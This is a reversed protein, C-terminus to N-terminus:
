EWFMSCFDTTESTNLYELGEIDTLNDMYFFWSNCTTPRADAFTSDIVVKEVSRSYNSTYWKPMDSSSSVRFKDTADTDDIKNDYRFTLTKTSDQYEVWMIAKKTFYGRLTAMEKGTKTDEYNPLKTSNKFMDDGKCDDAVTFKDTAYISTLSSCDAFMHSMDAVNATNFLSLDISTISTCGEFMSSMDTVKQTNLYTLGDFSALNSMGKFWSHFSTPSVSNFAKNIVVHEVDEKHALWDPSDTTGSPVDYTNGSASNRQADYHFALTKTTKDYDVWKTAGSEIKIFYGNDANAMDYNTNNEDYDLLSNCGEFMGYGSCDDTMVFSDSVFISILSSCNQFMYDIESLIPTNFSTLDLTTLSSCEKFMGYMCDVKSTNFSSFNISTLATCYGFMESMDDVNHTDFSSLDLSTLSTCGAFMAYMNTVESTNLYNMGEIDKLSTMPCFWYSCTTPRAAAFSADFVVKTVTKIKSDQMWKPVELNDNVAIYDGISYDGDQKDGDYRFTMTLGDDSFHIYAQNDAWLSMPMALM